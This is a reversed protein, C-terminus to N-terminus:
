MSRDWHMRPKDSTALTHTPPSNPLQHHGPTLKQLTMPSHTRLDDAKSHLGQLHYLPSSISYMHVPSSYSFLPSTFFCVSTGKCIQWSISWTHSSMSQIPKPIRCRCIFNDIDSILIHTCCCVLSIHLMAWYGLNGKTLPHFYRDKVPDPYYYAKQPTKTYFGCM